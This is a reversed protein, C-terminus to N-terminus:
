LKASGASRNSHHRRHSVELLARPTVLAEGGPGTIAPPAPLCQRAHRMISGRRRRVRWRRTPQDPHDRHADAQHRQRRQVPRLRLNRGRAGARPVPAAPVPARPAPPRDRQREIGKPVFSRRHWISPGLCIVGRVRPPPITRRRQVVIRIAPAHRVPRRLRAPIAPLRSPRARPRSTRAASAALGDPGM